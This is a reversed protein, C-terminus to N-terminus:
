SRLAQTVGRGPRWSEVEIADGGASLRIAVVETVDVRFLEFEGPPDSPAAGRVLALAAPDTTEHATGSVRADGTWGPLDDSGSHVAVRPDRRLDTFRRAGVMGALWLDDGVLVVETGCLRPSGDARLTAMVKHPHADLRRRVERALGPQEAVFESWSSM